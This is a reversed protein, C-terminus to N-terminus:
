ESYERSNKRSHIVQFLVKNQEVVDMSNLEVLLVPDPEEPVRVVNLYGDIRSKNVSRGIFYGVCFSAALMCVCVITITTWDM